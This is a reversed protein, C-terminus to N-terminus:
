PRRCVDDNCDTGDSFNFSLSFLSSPWSLDNQRRKNSCFPDDTTLFVDREIRQFPDASVISKQKTVQDHGLTTSSYSLCGDFLLFLEDIEDFPYLHKLAVDRNHRIAGAHHAFSYGFLHDVLCSSARSSCDVRRMTRRLPLLLRTKELMKVTQCRRSRTSGIIQTSTKKGHM